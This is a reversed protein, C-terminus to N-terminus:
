REGGALLARKEATLEEDSLVGREHLAALRELRELRRDEPDPPLEADRGRGRSTWIAVAQARMRRVPDALEADPFERRTDRRLWVLGVLAAAALIIRVLLARMSDAASLIFILAVIGFVSFVIAPFERLGPALARRAAISSPHPSALWAAIVAFIGIEIVEKAISSLLSTAIPWAADAAPRATDTALQDTVVNGAVGRLILVLVGAAILGIGAGLITLWRTSRPTLYIALGLLFLTLLSTVMAIGRILKVITQATGLEDSKLIRLNGVDPPLKNVADQPVGLQSAVEIILPRLRLQVEGNGTSVVTGKDEVVNILTKHAARNADRWVQQFRDTGLAQEAGQRALERLGTAAPGSLDKLDKPLKEQVVKNVNVNDYLENVAFTAVASRITENEILRGSTDVWEDTDLAQREVWASFIALVSLLSAVLVLAKVLRPHGRRSAAADSV